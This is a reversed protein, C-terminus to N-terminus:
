AAGAKRQEWGLGTRRGAAPERLVAPTSSRKWCCRATATAGGSRPPRPLRRAGTKLRPTGFDDPVAGLKGFDKKSLSNARTAGGHFLASVSHQRVQPALRKKSSRGAWNTLTVRGGAVGCVGLV